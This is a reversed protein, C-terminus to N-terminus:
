DETGYEIEERLQYITKRNKTMSNIFGAKELQKLQKLAGVRSLGILDGITKSDAEVINKMETIIKRQTGNLKEVKKMLQEYTIDEVGSLFENFKEGIDIKILNKDIIFSLIRKSLRIVRHPSGNALRAIMTIVMSSFLEEARKSIKFEEIRKKIIEECASESLKSLMLIEASPFKVDTRHKAREWASINWAAILYVNKLHALDSFVKAYDEFIIDADDIFIIIPKNIKSLESIMPAPVKFMEGGSGEIFKSDVFSEKFESNNKIFYIKEFNLENNFKVALDKLLNIFISKGIGHSGLINLMKNKEDAMEKLNEVGAILEDDRGVKIKWINGSFDINFPNSSLGREKYRSYALAKELKKELVRDSTVSTIVIM